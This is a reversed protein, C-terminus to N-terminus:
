DLVIYNDSVGATDTPLVLKLNAECWKRTKEVHDNKHPEAPFCIMNFACTAGFVNEKNDAPNPYEFLPTVLWYCIYNLESLYELLAVHKEPKDNEVFLVPRTERIFKEGGKLIDLEMGEADIQILDYQPAMTDLTHQRIANGSKWTSSDIGGFNAKRTYDFHPVTITKQESGLAANCMEINEVMGANASAVDYMGPQPEFATVDCGMHAFVRAMYGMQAGINAVRWGPQVLMQLFKSESPSYWGYQELSKGVYEDTPMYIFPGVPTQAYALPFRYLPNPM